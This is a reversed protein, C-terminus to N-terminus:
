VESVEPFLDHYEVHADIFKAVFWCTPVVHRGSQRIDDLAGAVLLAGIGEGRHEPNTFTHHMVVQGGCVRYDAVGVVQGNLVYEYRSDGPAHRVSGHADMPCWQASKRHVSPAGALFMM